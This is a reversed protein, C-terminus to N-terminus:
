FGEALLCLDTSGPRCPACTGLVASIVFADDFGSGGTAQPESSLASSILFSLNTIEISCPSTSRRESGGAILDQRPEM